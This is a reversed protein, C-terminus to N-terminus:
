GTVSLAAAFTLVMTMLILEVVSRRVSQEAGIRHRQAAALWGSRNRGAVVVLAVTVAVKALLIRGHGTGFLQAPSDLLGAAAVTGGVLLAGVLWVAWRSFVPLVRAWQGRSRVTLVMAALTGCWLAAALAHGVVAFGAVVSGSVHGTVARAAVGAAAATIVWRDRVAGPRIVGTVAVAAAAVVGCLASRGPATGTAFQAATDVTLTVADAGAARAAAAMLQTLEAVLWGAGVVVLPRRARESLEGRRRPEDLLPVVALGLAVVAAVDAVARVSAVVLPLDPRALAWAALLAAVMVAVTAASWRFEPRNM